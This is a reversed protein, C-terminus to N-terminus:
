SWTKCSSDTLLRSNQKSLPQRIAIVDKNKKKFSKRIALSCKSDPPAEDDAYRKM